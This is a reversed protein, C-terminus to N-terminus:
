GYLPDFATVGLNLCAHIGRWAEYVDKGKYAIIRPTKAYSGPILSARKCAATSTWEIEFETKGLVKYPKFDKVRSVAKYAKTQIEDHANKLSLCRAAWRDIAKKVVAAEIDGLVDKAEEALCDDGSVMIVPVNFYGAISAYLEVEGIPKDNMRMEYMEPGVLTENAVGHSHGVKAHLGIFLAADFNEIQEVMSLRKNSGRIIEARADLDEYMINLMSWHADNVVVETAGAEFSGAIAANVDMTMLRRFENYREGTPHMEASSVVGSVGEGDAVIYIKMENRWM